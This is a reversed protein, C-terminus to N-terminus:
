PIRGQDPGGHVLTWTGGHVLTWTGRELPRRLASKAIRRQERVTTRTKRMVNADAVETSAWASDGSEAASSALFSCFGIALRILTGSCLLQSKPIPRASAM